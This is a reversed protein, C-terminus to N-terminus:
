TSTREWPRVMWLRSTEFSDPEEWPREMEPVAPREWSPPKTSALFRTLSSKMAFVNCSVVPVRPTAVRGFTTSKLSRRCSRRLAFARMTTRRAQMAPVTAMTTAASTQSSNKESTNRRSVPLILTAPDLSHTLWDWTSSIALFCAPLDIRSTESALTSSSILSMGPTVAASDFFCNGFDNRIVILACFGAAM